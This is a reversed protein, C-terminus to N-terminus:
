SSRGLRCYACLKPDFKFSVPKIPYSALYVVPHNRICVHESASSCRSSPVIFRHAVFMFVFMRMIVSLVIVFVIMTVLMAVAMGVNMIVTVFVIGVCVILGVRVIVFVLVGVSMIVLVAVTVFMSVVMLMSVIVFVTMAVPVLSMEMIRLVRRLKIASRRSDASIEGLFQSFHQDQLAILSNEVDRRPGTSHSPRYRLPKPATPDNANILREGHEVDSVLLCIRNGRITLASSLRISQRKLGISEIAGKHRKTQMVKVIGFSHHFFHQPHQFIPAPEHNEVGHDLLRLVRDVNSKLSLNILHKPARMAVIKPKVGGATDLPQQCFSAIANRAGVNQGVREILLSHVANGGALVPQLGSLFQFGFRRFQRRAQFLIVERPVFVVVMDVDLPAKRVSQDASHLRILRV